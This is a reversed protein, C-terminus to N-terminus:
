ALMYRVVLVMLQGVHLIVSQGVFSLPLSRKKCANFGDDTSVM